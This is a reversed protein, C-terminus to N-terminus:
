EEIEGDVIETEKPNGSGLARREIVEAFAELEDDSLREVMREIAAADLKLTPGWRDPARRELYWAAAQWKEHGARRVHELADLEAEALAQHTDASFQALHPRADEQAGQYLWNRVTSRSVGIADAATELYCGSRLLRLFKLALEPNWKSPRGGRWKGNKHRNIGM